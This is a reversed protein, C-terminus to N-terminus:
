TFFFIGLAALVIAIFVVLISIVIWKMKLKKQPLIAAQQPPNNQVFQTSNQGLEQVAQEVESASYGANLFSHKAEEVSEGRELANKFGAIIEESTM